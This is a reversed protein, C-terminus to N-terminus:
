DATGVPVLEGNRIYYERNRWNITNRTFSRLWIGVALADWLPILLFYRLHFPQKLGWSGILWTMAIRMALYTGLYALGVVRADSVLAAVIAWPLGLTFLLGFHGWPRMHRMVVM